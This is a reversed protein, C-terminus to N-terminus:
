AVEADSARHSAKILSAIDVILVVQGDGLISAGAIGRARGLYGSLSKVVIDQQDILRDVAIAVPREHDGEGTRVVVVYPDARPATREEDVGLSEDLWIMSMVANRTRLSLVSRGSVTKLQGVDPRLTEQVYNLPIAYTTSGCSVLLGRITALTLPLRLRFVTGRGPETEVEVHGKLAEIDRRVIDMGVGRGSVETTAAATSLGPEFILAVAEQDSMRAAREASVLGREVAKAKVGDADIGRGDDELSIAIQGQEHRAVLRLISLEPKGAARRDELPEVGHDAANRILHVLPDKIKEIVSRDIETDEGEIELRINKGMSRALDRVLRPFKSFLLGVPLMRVRMMNEHLEDVVKEIHTATEGLSRVYEDDKFRAGLLRSLQSVRTRDIVLEGVMNMMSDLQEVDIRVTTQLGEVRQAASALSEQAAKSKRAPALEVVNAAAPGTDPAPEAVPVPAAGAVWPVVSVDQTDEVGSLTARLEDPDDGTAFLVEITREVHEAEIEAQTPVSHIVEGTRDLTNLVQFCRVAAWDSEPRIHVTIVYPTRGEAAASAARAALAPDAAMASALSARAAPAVPGAEGTAAAHLAEVIPEVDIPTEDGTTINDRLIKLGDLSMLLADIIAPSVVLTKKRVRDLLDEMAHTLHAMAEFGLMGSSGKLTHAARFIEQLLEDSEEQQELRVIDEDLLELLSEAEQMFVKLEDASIDTSGAM